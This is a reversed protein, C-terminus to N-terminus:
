PQVKQTLERLRRNISGRTERILGGFVSQVVKVEEETDLLVIRDLLMKSTEGVSMWRAACMDDPDTTTLVLHYGHLNRTIFFKNTM